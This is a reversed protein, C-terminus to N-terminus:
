AERSRYRLFLHHDSRRVSVLDHWRADAPSLAIGEVLGLRGTAARGVLQPALTLFLQDLVDDGVVQGLLHPGGETLILRAGLRAGLGALDEGSVRGSTGVAEISM